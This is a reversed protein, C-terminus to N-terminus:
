EVYMSADASEVMARMAACCFIPLSESLYPSLCIPSMLMKPVANTGSSKRNTVCCLRHSMMGACISDPMTQAPASRIM